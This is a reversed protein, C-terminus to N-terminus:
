CLRNAQSIALGVWTALKLSPLLPLFFRLVVGYQVPRENHIENTPICQCMAHDCAGFSTVRKVTRKVEIWLSCITIKIPVVDTSSAGVPTKSGIRQREGWLNGHWKSMWVSDADDGVAEHYPHNELWCDATEKLAHQGYFEDLSQNLDLM